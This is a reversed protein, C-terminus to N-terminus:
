GHCILGAPGLFLCGGETWYAALPQVGTRRVAKLTRLHIGPQALFRAWLPDLGEPVRASGKAPAWFAVQDSPGLEEARAWGLPTIVEHGEGVVVPRELGAFWLELAPGERLLFGGEVWVVGEPGPAALLLREGEARLPLSENLWLASRTRRGSM